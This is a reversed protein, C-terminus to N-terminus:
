PTRRAQHREFELALHALARRVTAQEREDSAADLKELLAAIAHGRVSPERALDRLRQSDSCDTEDVLELYAFRAALRAQWAEVDLPEDLLGRLHLRAYVQPGGFVALLRDLAADDVAAAIDVPEDVCMAPGLESPRITTQGDRWEVVLAVRPGTENFRAAVPTGCYAAVLRSGVKIEQHTHFHGLAVYDLGLADLQEPTVPLDKDAVHFAGHYDVTAHLMGIHCGGPERRKLLALDAPQGAKASLAYLWFDADRGTVRLPQRCTSPAFWVLNNHELLPKAADVGLYDHTGSVAFAPIHKAALRDLFQRAVALAAAEPKASDFLDGALLVADAATEIALAALREIAQRQEDRRRGAAEGFSAFAHGLHWDATHLLRITM